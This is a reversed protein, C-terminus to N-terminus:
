EMEPNLKSWARGIVPQCAGPCDEAEIGQRARRVRWTREVQIGALYIL